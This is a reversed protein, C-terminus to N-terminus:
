KTAREILGAALNIPRVLGLKGPLHEDLGAESVGATPVGVLEGAANIAAGGSNGPNIEADTKIWDPLFGSVSGRTLTVTEGGLGPFGLITLEDSIQVTTSDGVPLATLNLDAPLSDGDSLSIIRLVALDLTYDAEVLEARYTVEPPLSAGASSLAILVVGRSNYLTRRELDGLVHFNTLIYGDAAVVTGSGLSVGGSTADDPVLVQVTAALAHELRVTREAVPTSVPPADNNRKSFANGALWLLSLLLIGSVGVYLPKNWWRRTPSRQSVFQYDCNSCV